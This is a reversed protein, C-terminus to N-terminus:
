ARPVGRVPAQGELARTLRDHAAAIRRKVTALSCGCLLATQELREGEVHHLTWAVRLSTPMRDLARYVEVILLREEASAGPAPLNEYSPTAALDVVSWLRRLRLQRICRRVTVKALWGKIEREDDRRWLGRLSAAFVEQVVDEVEAARGLMRSALAGVYPAYREYLLEISLELTGAASAHALSEQQPEATGGASSASPVIRLQPRPPM